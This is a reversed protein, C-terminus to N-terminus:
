LTTALRIVNFNHINQTHKIEDLYEKMLIHNTKNMYEEM